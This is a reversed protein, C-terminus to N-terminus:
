RGYLADARTEFAQVMRRVVTDFVAGAIMQFARSRFAYDIDFTVESGGGSAPAFSWRNELHSFPGDVYEVLIKLNARDLAVRSTFSERIVKYGIAMDALLVESGAVGTTRRRVVLKECMPVFEPYREVDAVLDFMQEPTHKLRRTTVYNPM